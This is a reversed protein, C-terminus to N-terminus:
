FAKAGILIWFYAEAYKCYIGYVMKGGLYLDDGVFYEASFEVSIFNAVNNLHDM